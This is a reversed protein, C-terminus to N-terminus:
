KKEIFRSSIGSFVLLLFLYILFQPESLHEDPTLLSQLFFCLPLHWFFISSSIKGLYVLPKMRLIRACLGNSLALYVIMPTILFAAAVPVNGCITVMGYKLILYFFCFLFLFVAPRLWKHVSNQIKPFHTQLLCGLFFNLFAVGNSAFCFPISMDKILLTYGWAVGILLLCYYRTPTASFRCIVYYAVYCVLLASVFWTPANYPNASSLGGGNQLLLTFVLKELQLGTIGYRWIELFLACFATIIYIPYLNSLRRHLFNQLPMSGSTIRERYGFSLLFGSLMFFMSNGFVGGFLVIMSIGPISDFVPNVGITNHLVILLIFIGKLATLESFNKREKKREKM